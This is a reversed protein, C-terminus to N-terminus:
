RKGITREPVKSAGKVIVQNKLATRTNVVILTSSEASNLALRRGQWKLRVNEEQLLSRRLSTSLFLIWVFIADAVVVPMHAHAIEHWLDKLSQADESTQIFGEYAIDALNV